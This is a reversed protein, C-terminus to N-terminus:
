ECDSRVKKLLGDMEEMASIAMTIQGPLDALYKEEFEMARLDRWTEKTREWEINLLRAAQTLNSSSGTSM